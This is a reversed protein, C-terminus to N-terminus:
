KGDKKRIGLLALGSLLISAGAALINSSSHAGTEPLAPGSSHTATLSSADSPSESYSTGFSSM